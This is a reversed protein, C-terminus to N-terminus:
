NFSVTKIHNYFAWHVFKIFTSVTTLAVLFKRFHGTTDSMIDEELDGKFVEAGFANFYVVCFLLMKLKYLEWFASLQWLSHSM